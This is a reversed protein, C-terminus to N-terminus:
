LWVRVSLAHPVFTRYVCVSRGPLRYQSGTTAGLNISTQPSRTFRNGLRSPPIWPVCGTRVHEDSGHSALATETTQRCGSGAQTLDSAREDESMHWVTDSKGAQFCRASPAYSSASGEHLRLGSSWGVRRITRLPASSRRSAERHWSRATSTRIPPPRTAQHLRSGPRLM